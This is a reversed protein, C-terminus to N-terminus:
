TRNYKDQAPNDEGEYAPMGPDRTMTFPSRVGDSGYFYGSTVEGFLCLLGSVCGQEPTLKAGWGQVMATDIFGPSLSVVKLHPFAKAYVLTLGNLAAKSMGYGKAVLDDREAQAKITKDLEDFTIDPNSLTARLTADQKKLYMCAGGSSTNVIRGETPDILKVMAETVRKPGNYNTNLISHIDAVAAEAQNLGLGANNVLAYLCVGKAKLAAAAAACSADDTVDIQLVEIKGAADPFDDLIKKVAAEGRELSRAGLFVHCPPPVPTTFESDPQTSTALLKCLAFGIGSNGGTVLINKSM